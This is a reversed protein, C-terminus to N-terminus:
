GAEGGDDQWHAEDNRQQLDAEDDFSRVDIDGEPKQSGSEQYRLGKTWDDSKLQLDGSLLSSGGSLTQKISRIGNVWDDCAHQTDTLPSSGRRQRAQLDNNQM